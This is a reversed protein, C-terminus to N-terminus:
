ELNKSLADLTYMAGVIADDTVEFDMNGMTDNEDNALKAVEYLKDRSVNAIGLEEFNTPLNLEKCFEIITYIEDIPRNELVMQTLTGFAVKEGHLLSHLEEIATLGNHIAHAGALGGSEFGLGSLFTNAEIVNSVAKTVFNREVAKSAKIGDKLLTDLCLEALAMRTLGQKGGVTTNGNSRRTADAEYYTALADGIGANFLRVPANAIVKEDLLVVNPNHKLFLYKDFQGDETYLVSLASCPADTSAATPVIIVPLDAYYGVAKATDLTKGGGIGLVVSYENNEEIFDAHRKVEVESCEGNFVVLNCEDEDYSSKIEDGYNENIFPDVLAYVKGEGIQSSYEKLSELIGEGQIYKSPSYFIEM